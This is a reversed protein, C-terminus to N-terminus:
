DNTLKPRTTKKEAGNNLVVSKNRM